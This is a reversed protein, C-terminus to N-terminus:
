LFLRMIAMIYTTDENSDQNEQRVRMDWVRIIMFVQASRIINVGGKRRLKQFAKM